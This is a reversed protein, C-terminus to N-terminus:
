DREHSEGRKKQIEDNIAKADRSAHWFFFGYVSLTVILVVPLVMLLTFLNLEFLGFLRGLLFVCLLVDALGVLIQGAMSKVPLRDTFFMVCQIATNMGLLYLLAAPSFHLYPVPLPLLCAISLVLVLVTYSVCVRIFYDKFM